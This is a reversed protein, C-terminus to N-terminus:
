EGIASIFEQRSDSNKAYRLYIRNGCISPSSLSEDGLRNQSLLKSGTPSVQIVSTTSQLNTIFIRDGLMVPSAYFDRDIKEKWLEDGTDSKFCALHGSDLAAYLHGDRILMSPVYVRTPNQWAVRGSGDAEIAALHNRPYGGSVFVRKGDTVAATVCEETSGQTEWLKEGSVPNFSSILNCGSLIMQTKGAATVISPTTYNPLLPRSHSWVPEGTKRNLAAIRGGGKNDANVLVLEGHVVPSVGFGQHMVFDCVKQQWLIKGNLDLATTFISGQNPFNVYLREGDCAVASTAPSSLRHKGSDLHGKHIVSSWLLNGNKRNLCLVIQEEASTDATAIYLHDGVVSPSGHGRGRIPTTWRVGTTENWTSPISQGPAAQGDATPGRWGPWDAQPSIPASQSTAATWSAVLLPLSKRCLTLFPSTNIARM